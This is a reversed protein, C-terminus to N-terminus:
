FTPPCMCEPPGERAFFPVIYTSFPCKVYFIAFFRPCPDGPEYTWVVLCLVTKPEFFVNLSKLSLLFQTNKYISHLVVFLVIFCYFSIVICCYLLIVSLSFHPGRSYEM